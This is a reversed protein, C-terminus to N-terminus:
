KSPIPPQKRTIQGNQVKANQNISAQRQQIIATNLANDMQQQEQEQQIRLAEEEELRNVLDDRDIDKATDVPKYVNMNQLKEAGTIVDLKTEFNIDPFVAKIKIDASIVQDIPIDLHDALIPDYWYKELIGQYWTRYRKLMGAKYTQMVQNATAFNATDEFLLFQPMSISNCMYKALSECVDMLEMPNNHLDHVDAKLGEENHVLSVGGGTLQEQLRKLTSKNSTGAYIIMLKAYFQRAIEPMDEAIIAEIVNGAELIPWVASLGSYNTNDLVNNDDHFAPILKTAPITEIATNGVTNNNYDFGTFLGDNDVNAQQIRQTNLHKLSKPEGFQNWVGSETEGTPFRNIQLGGRGFIFTSTLLKSSNNWLECRKNIRVLKRKLERIDDSANIKDRLARTEKDDLGETLEDNPEIVFNTREGHIFYVTKDVVTRVIGNNIYAKACQDLQKSNLITQPKNADFIAAALSIDSKRFSRKPTTIFNPQGKIENKVIKPPNDLYYGRQV